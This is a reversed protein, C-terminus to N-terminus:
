APKRIIDRIAVAMYYRPNSSTEIERLIGARVFHEVHLQAARYTIDVYNAVMRVSVVMSEFLYDVIRAPYASRGMALAKEHLDARLVLLADAIGITRRATEAIVDLFFIVWETWAGDRSVAYMRDIYEDKREELVPSIYLLPQHLLRRMALHLVVLMRGVRGNGDAFPHITEFQYHVLAADILDPVPRDPRHLYLELRELTERAERPPPPVFRAQELAWAGIFNQSRKLEGPEVAAGRHRAVGSLLDRHAERLTRISLPVQDLSALARRLANKYNLVERTDTSPNRSTGGAQLMLLDDVTTYTGEMSSSTLAEQVQLPQILLWPNPLLRGIGNLEGLLAAAREVPGALRAFDMGTPPLDHPVFAWQGRDTSVLRGSPSREFDAKNVLYLERM